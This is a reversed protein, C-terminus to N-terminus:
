YSQPPLVTQSSSKSLSNTSTFLQQTSKVLSKRPPKDKSPKPPKELKSLKKNQESLLKVLKETAAVQKLAAQLKKASKASKVSFTDVKLNVPSETM